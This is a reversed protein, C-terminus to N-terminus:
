SRPTSGLKQQWRWGDAMGDELTLETKWGLVKEAKETSAYIKEVDGPRRGVLQYNLKKGSVKEFAGIV